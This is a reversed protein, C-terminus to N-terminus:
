DKRGTVWIYPKPAEDYGAQLVTFGAEKFLDAFEEKDAFYYGQMGKYSDTQVGLYAQIRAIGGSVLVRHSEQLYRFMLEKKPIHQFVLCSYVFDFSNDQLPFTFGDFLETTANPTNELYKCSHEIMNASIDIGHVHAFYHAMPKMMRGIGCGIELAMQEGLVSPDIAEPYRLGPLIFPLQEETYRDWGAEDVIVRRSDELTARNWFMRADDLLLDTM